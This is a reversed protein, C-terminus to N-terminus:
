LSGEQGFSAGGHFGLSSGCETSEDKVIEKGVGVSEFFGRWESGNQADVPGGVMTAAAKAPYGFGTTIDLVKAGEFIGAFKLLEVPRRWKDKYDKTAM